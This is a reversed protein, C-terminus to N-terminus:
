AYARHKITSPAVGFNEPVPVQFHKAIIAIIAFHHVTHSVLYQLEREISSQSASTCGTDLIKLPLPNNGLLALAETTASLRHLAVSPDTELLLDRPRTEYNVDRCENLALLLEDYHEICHRLHQGITSSFVTECKESYVIPSLCSVFGHAQAILHSNLQILGLMLPFYNTISAKWRTPDSPKKGLPRPRPM